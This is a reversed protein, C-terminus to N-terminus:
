NRGKMTKGASLHSAQHYEHGFRAKSDNMAM